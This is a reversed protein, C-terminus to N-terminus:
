PRHEELVTLRHEHLGLTEEQEELKRWIRDHGRSNRNSFEELEQRMSDLLTNLRTISANLSLMPRVVAAILGTLTVVVGVVTWETM